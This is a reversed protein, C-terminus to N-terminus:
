RPRGVRRPSRRRRLLLGTAMSSHIPSPRLPPKSPSSTSSSRAPAVTTSQQLATRTTARARFTNHGRPSRALADARRQALTRPDDECVSRAMVELRQKLLAADTSFLRGFVAATGTADSEAVTFDRTRASNRTRRLAAPDIKDVWVDIAQTLKYESLPGWTTLREAIVSDLEALADPDTVLYTRDSILWVRRANLEGALFLAGVKPFRDRLMIALDMEGSARGHGTNLAAAIEAAAADWDDCAWNPHEDTCRRREFEAIAAYKMADSAASARAWGAVTDILAAEDLGRLAAVDAPLSEFMYEIISGVASM